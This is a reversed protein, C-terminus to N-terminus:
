AASGIRAAVLDRLEAKNVKGVTTHPFSEILELRDPLKYDALGGSRLFSRITDLSPAEGRPVVWACTREGLVQDPMAVVAVDRVSPHTILLDELEGASVKEGGRNIVDKIRGEVVMNGDPTFRVLDGTRLFGDRTFAKANHDPVRYYGRLTYPGRTLLEGIEGPAVDHDREDVVRIEDDPCLPRGQTHIIVDRPDDVRTYTLLGEAMGFWHTLSSGLDTYIRRALEPAFRASGVQILLRSFDVDYFDASELWALVLPPMLTTLTVSEDEILEFCDDPSPSAPLVVKGGARLTGLLGPCGLAANHAVPLAALYASDEGQRLGEATARLQYAYDDHTRPILKPLGTTGGSLLFFAVDAPAPGALPLPDAEIASLATAEGPDGDVLVHEITKVTGAVEAALARYDFGQHVDPIVYAVAESAECLYVIEKRRHNPLAFVPPSGLRFLAVSVAAFSARNPLQVVVPDGPRIGLAHFGAALRDAKADLEAYSWRRDPEVIATRGGPREAWERLLGGLTEGRWYGAERYRRALEEPFRDFDIMTPDGGKVISDVGPLHRRDSTRGCHGAPYKVVM